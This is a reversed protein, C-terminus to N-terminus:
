GSSASFDSVLDVNVAHCGSAAHKRCSMKADALYLVQIVIFLCFIMRKYKFLLITSQHCGAHM